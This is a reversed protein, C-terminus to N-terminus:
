DSMIKVKLDDPVNDKEYEYEALLNLDILLQSGKDTLWSCRITTGHEIFEANDLWYFMFQIYANKCIDGDVYTDWEKKDCYILANHIARFTIANDGCGCLPLADIREMWETPEYWTM